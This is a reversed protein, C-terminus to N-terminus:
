YSASTLMSRKGGRAADKWFRRRERRCHKENVDGYRDRRFIQLILQECLYFPDHSIFAYKLCDFNTPDFNADDDSIIM